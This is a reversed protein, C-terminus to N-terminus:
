GVCRLLDDFVIIHPGIEGVVDIPGVDRNEDVAGDVGTLVLLLLVVVGLFFQFVFEGPQHQPEGVGVAVLAPEGFDGGM